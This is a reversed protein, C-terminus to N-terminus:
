LLAMSSYGTGFDDLAHDGRQCLVVLQARMALDNM